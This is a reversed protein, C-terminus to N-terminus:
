KKQIASYGVNVIEQYNHEVKYSNNKFKLKLKYEKNNNKTPGVESILTFLNNELSLETNDSMTTNFKNSGINEPITVDNLSIIEFDNNVIINLILDTAVEVKETNVTFKYELRDYPKYSTLNCLNPSTTSCIDGKTIKVNFQAPRASDNTAMSSIYKSYTVVGTVILLALVYLILWKILNGRFTKSHLLKGM